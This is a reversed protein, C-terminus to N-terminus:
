FRCWGRPSFDVVDGPHFISVVGPTFDVGGGPRFISVMGPTFFRCWGEPCTEGRWLVMRVRDDKNHNKLLELVKTKKQVETM